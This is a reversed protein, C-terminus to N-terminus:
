RPASELERKALERNAPATFVKEFCQAISLEPHSNRYEEAKRMLEDYATAESNSRDAKAHQTGDGQLWERPMPYISTPTPRQYLRSVITANRPDTFAREFVENETLRPWQKRGIRMLEARAREIESQDNGVADLMADPGGVVTVPLGPGLMTEALSAKAVNIASRLVRGETPDSYVRSFAQAESLEPWREHAVKGVAAVLEYESITTSGKSVIAACTASIGGSKMISHVTDMPPDDKKHMRALLAQGHPSHLLHSLASARDPHSGAEVLLDAVKSAHHDSAPPLHHLTAGNGADDGGNFIKEFTDDDDEDSEREDDDDDDTPRRTRNYRAGTASSTEMDDLEKRMGSADVVVDVAGRMLDGLEGEDSYLRKLVQTPEGYFTNAYRLAAAKFQAKIDDDVIRPNNVISKCLRLLRERRELPGKSM